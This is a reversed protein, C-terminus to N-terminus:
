ERAASRVIDDRIRCAHQQRARSYVPKPLIRALPAALPAAVPAALRFSDFINEREDKETKMAKPEKDLEEAADVDVDTGRKVAGPRGFFASITLQTSTM